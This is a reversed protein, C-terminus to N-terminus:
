NRIPDAYHFIEREMLHEKPFIRSVVAAALGDDWDRSAFFLSAM